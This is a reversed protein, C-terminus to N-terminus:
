STMYAIAAPFLKDLISKLAPAMEPKLFLAGIYVLLLAIIVIEWFKSKSMENQDKASKTDKNQKEAPELKPSASELHEQETELRKSGSEPSIPQPIQSQGLHLDHKKSKRNKHSSSKKKSKKSMLCAGKEPRQAKACLVFATARLPQTGLGAQRSEAKRNFGSIRIGLANGPYQEM